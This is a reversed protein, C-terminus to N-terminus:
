KEAPMENKEIAKVVIERIDLSVPCLRVCRGCGTCSFSGSNKPSYRYKHSVRQRMRLAKRHRPNHGSAENTFQATMCSDWSRLRRGDMSDGEDTITFCQCTPCMYTCAGCGLCKATQDQWFDLDAFREALRDPASSIDPAPTQAARAAAKIAEAEAIIDSRAATMGVLLASGKATHASLVYGDKVATFSIDAGETSDPGGGVWHCFCSPCPDACSQVMVVTRERRALYYPDKYPGDMYAKDLALLGRADCSRCAFILTLGPDITACDELSYSLTGPDAPDKIATFRVLAEGTPIVAAKPSLRARELVLPQGPVLPRFVVAHGEKAPALVRHTQAQKELWPMLEDAGLYLTDHTSQCSASM